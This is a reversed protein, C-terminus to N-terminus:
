PLDIRISGQQHLIQQENQDKFCYPEVSISGDTQPRVWILQNLPGDRSVHRVSWKFEQPPKCDGRSGFIWEAEHVVAYTPPGGGFRFAWFKRRLEPPWTAALRVTLEYPRQPGLSREPSAVAAVTYGNKPSVYAQLAVGLASMQQRERIASWVETFTANGAAFGLLLVLVAWFRRRVLSLSILVTLAATIPLLPLEFRSSVGDGPNWPIRATAVTPLLGAVLAVAPSLIDQASITNRSPFKANPQPNRTGYLLLSGVLAGYAAAMIGSNSTLTVQGMSIVFSGVVSRWIGEVLRFAFRAPNSRGLEEFIDFPNTGGGPRATYDAIMVFTAYAAGAVLTSFFIAQWARVRTERDPARRGYSWFVIVMVIVVSLAYEQVLIALGLIPLSLGLAARRFRDDAMVFRLLLLFAGYGLVVSLLSALAINATVMQVKSIIPAVTVCGVVMAYQRLNPFLRTWLLASMIGFIPWELAQAVFSARWFAQESTALLWWLIGMVPRDVWAAAIIGTGNENLLLWTWADDWIPFAWIAGITLPVCIMVLALMSFLNFVYRGPALPLEPIHCVVERSPALGEGLSGPTAEGVIRYFFAPSSIAVALLWFAVLVVLGRITIREWIALYFEVSHFKQGKIFGNFFPLSEGRYASEILPPVVLKTFAIWLGASVCILILLFRIRGMRM